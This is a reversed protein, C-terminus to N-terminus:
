KKLAQRDQPAFGFLMADRIMEKEIIVLIGKEVNIRLM